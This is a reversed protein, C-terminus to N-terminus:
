QALSRRLPCKPACLHFAVFATVCDGFTHAEARSATRRQDQLWRKRESRRRRLRTRLVDGRLSGRLL